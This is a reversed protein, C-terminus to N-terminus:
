ENLGRAESRWTLRGHALEWSIIGVAEVAGGESCALKGVILEGQFFAVIYIVQEKPRQKADSMDRLVNSGKKIVVEKKV